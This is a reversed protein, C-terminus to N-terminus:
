MKIVEDGERVVQDVKFAVDDGKKAKEVARHDIQMSTIIQTFENKHGKIKITDGIKLSSTLMVAAVGIKDFYHGIRGIGKAM